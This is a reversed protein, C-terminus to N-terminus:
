HNTLYYHKMYPFSEANNSNVKAPFIITNKIGYFFFISFYGCPPVMLLVTLRYCYEIKNFYKLWFVIRVIIRYNNM